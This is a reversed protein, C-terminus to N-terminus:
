WGGYRQTYWPVMLCVTLCTALSLLTARVLLGLSVARVLPNNSAAVGATGPDESSSYGADFVFNDTIAFSFGGAFGGGGMNVDYLVPGGADAVSPGDFPVITSTVFDDTVISNAALIVDLRSGVPFATTSTMLM